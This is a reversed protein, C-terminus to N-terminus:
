QVGIYADQIRTPNTPPQGRVINPLVDLGELVSAWVTYQQDLSPYANFTIFFQSGNSNPDTTRAMGVIGADDYNYSPNLELGFTYGCGGSGWTSPAGSISNPDGGQAMFGDIVRHFATGDYFHNLTLFVFSNYTIPAIQPYLQLVIRGADTDLVAVYQHTSDIVQQASTFTHTTASSSLFPMMTYGSPLYPGAETAVDPTNGADNQNPPTSTGCGFAFVFLLCARM